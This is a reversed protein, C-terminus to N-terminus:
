AEKEELHEMPLTELFSNRVCAFKRFQATMPQAKLATASDSATWGNQQLTCEKPCFGMSRNQHM